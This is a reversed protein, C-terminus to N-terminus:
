DVYRNRMEDLIAQRDTLISMNYPDPDRRDFTEPVADLSDKVDQNFFPVELFFSTLDSLGFGTDFWERSNTVLSSIGAFDNKEVKSGSDKGFFLSFWDFGETTDERIQVEAGNAFTYAISGVYEEMNQMFRYFNFTLGTIQEEQENLKGTYMNFERFYHPRDFIHQLTKLYNKIEELLRELVSLDINMPDSIADEVFVYASASLSPDATSTAKIIIYDYKQEEGITLLGSNSISTGASYVSTIQWTVSNDYSGTGSVSATFQQIDGRNLVIDDPTITVGTVAAPVNITVLATGYVSGDQDSTARVAIVPSVEDSGILLLGDRTIRTSSSAGGVAWTVASDEVNSGSVTASFQVNQGPAATASSPTITVSSVAPPMIYVPVTAYVSPDAVSTATIFIRQEPVGPLVSLLGSESITPYYEVSPSYSLSWTVAPNFDGIGTVQATCQLESGAYVIYDTEGLPPTIINLGTVAGTPGETESERYAFLQTYSDARSYSFYLGPPASPESEIGAVVMDGAPSLVFWGSMSPESTAAFNSCLLLDDGDRFVALGSSAPFYDGLKAYYGFSSILDDFDGDWEILNFGDLPVPASGAMYVSNDSPDLVDYSTWLPEVTSYSGPANTDSLVFGWSNVPVRVGFANFYFDSGEQSTVYSLIVYSTGGDYRVQGEYLYGPSSYLQLSVAEGPINFASFSQTSLSLYPYDSYSSLDPLSLLKHGNYLSFGDGSSETVTAFCPLALSLILILSVIIFRKKNQANGGQM